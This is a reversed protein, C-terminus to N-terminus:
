FERNLFTDVIQVILIAIGAVVSLFAFSLKWQSLATVIILVAFALALMKTTYWRAKSLGSLATGLYVVLGIAMFIWGEFFIRGPPPVAFLRPQSAHWYLGTWVLGTSIIFSIGTAAFKGWLIMTRKVSRHLEFGWTKTFGPMWFQRVGLILGLGISTLFLLVGAGSVIPSKIFTYVTVDPDRTFKYLAVDTGPSFVPYRNAWHSQMMQSWLNLGGFILFFVMALLMWPLCERLEKRLLAFFRM